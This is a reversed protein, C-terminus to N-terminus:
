IYTDLEYSNAEKLSYGSLYFSLAAKYATNMQHYSSNYFQYSMDYKVRSPNRRIIDLKHRTFLNSVRYEIKKRYDMFDQKYNIGLGNGRLLEIMTYDCDQNLIDEDNYGLHKLDAYMRSTVDDIKTGKDFVKKIEQLMDYIYKKAPNHEISNNLKQNQKVNFYRISNKVELNHRKSLIEEVSYKKLLTFMIFDYVENLDYLKINERTILHDIQESIYDKILLYNSFTLNYGFHMYYKNVFMNYEYMM